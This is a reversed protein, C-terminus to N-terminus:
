AGEDRQTLHMVKAMLRLKLNSTRGTPLAIMDKFTISVHIIPGNGLLQPYQKITHQVSPGRVVPQHLPPPLSQHEGDCGNSNIQDSRYPAESQLNGSATIM